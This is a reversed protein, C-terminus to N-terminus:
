APAGIARWSAPTHRAMVRAIERGDLMVPVNITMGEGGGGGFAERMFGAGKSNLPIIAEPGHLMAPTGSGFDGIGGEKFGLNGTAALAAAILAIGALIAGAYPIGFITDALAEAIAALVGMIFEGVATMISVMTAAMTSFAAMTSAFFGSVAASAGGWVATYLSAAVTAASTKMAEQAAFQIALNLGGQILAVQTQKWAAQIFNGGNVISNAIGSTWTSTISAVSFANSDVLAQLQTEWFGKVKNAADAQTVIFRGQAEENRDMADMETQFRDMAAQEEINYADVWDQAIQQSVAFEEQIRKGLAEQRKGERAKEAEQIVSGSVIDKGRQEQHKGLQEQQSLMIKTAAVIQEGLKKQDSAHSAAAKGAELQKTALVDLEKEAARASEVGKIESAAWADIAKVHNMTEEWASKSFVSLSFLRDSILQISAVMAGFRIVLKSGADSLANFADKAFVIAHTFGQVLILAAPAFAVGVQMAFGKLASNMDDLADDLATLNNRSVDTLILGFEAAKKMSEDLAAGGKNLMPIMDLGAKGFLDVAFKAKEAGDPLEKFRDAIARLTAGTGKGVVDLSVGMEQFLKTSAATGDRVGIMEKSLGKIARAIGDGSLGFRNMVVTMGEISSAAIGTKQALQDTQEATKAASVVMAGAATVAAFFATSITKSINSLGKEFQRASGGLQDFAEKIESVDAGIKVILSGIDAM